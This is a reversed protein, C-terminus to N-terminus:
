WDEGEYAHSSKERKNEAVNEASTVSVFNVAVQYGDYIFTHIAHGHWVM